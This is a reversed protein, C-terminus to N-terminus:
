SNGGNKGGNSTLATTVLILRSLHAVASIAQPVLKRLLAQYAFALLSCALLTSSCSM